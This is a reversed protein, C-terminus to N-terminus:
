STSARWRGEAPTAPTAGPIAARDDLRYGHFRRLCGSVLVAASLAGIVLSGAPVLYLERTPLHMGLLIGGIIPAGLSGIRGVAQAWGTGTSRIPTPYILVMAANIGFNNGVVCFGAGAIIAGLLLPPIDSVGMLAVLPAGIAFLVGVLAVGIRDILFILVLGGALGGISFMSASVGAQATTMGSSQLLTPLWSLAFFNTMQNAAIAIWIAPTIIGLGDKFLKGPSGGGYFVPAVDTSFRTDAAISLDPRLLRALRRADEDRNGHQVLFKLSENLALFVVAAIALPVLGGVLLLAQWGYHPVLFAAVWGPMAVGTPVGFLVIVTFMGRLRKPAMEATLALVNPIMGGLGVGTLFRLVIFDNLSSAMMTVLSFGGYTFLGVLIANKRGIRDGAFGLSPAGCLLGVIGATFVPAFHAPPIHWAKVLEPAVFGVASLDFGDAVMALTAIVLFVITSKQVKQGDILENLNVVPEEAMNEERLTAHTAAGAKKTGVSAAPFARPRELRRNDPARSRRVVLSLGCCALAVM